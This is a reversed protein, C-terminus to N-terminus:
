FNSVVATFVKLHHDCRFRRVGAANTAEAIRRLTELDADEGYAIAFM